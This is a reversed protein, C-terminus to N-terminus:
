AENIDEPQDQQSKWFEYREKQWDIWYLVAFRQARIISILALIWVPACIAPHQWLSAIWLSVSLLLIPWLVGWVSPLESM